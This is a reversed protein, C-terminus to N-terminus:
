PLDSPSRTWSPPHGWFPGAFVRPPRLAGSAEQLRPSTPLAAQGCRLESCLGGPSHPASDATKLGWSTSSQGPRRWFSWVSQQLRQSCGPRGLVARNRPRKASPRASRKYPHNGNLVRMWFAAAQTQGAHNCTTALVAVRLRPGRRPGACPGPPLGREGRSKQDGM